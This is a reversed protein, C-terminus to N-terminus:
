KGGKFLHTYIMSALGDSAEAFLSELRYDVTVRGTGDKALLGGACDIFGSAKLPRLYPEDQRRCYLKCGAGLEGSAANAFSSLLRGYGESERYDLIGSWVVELHRSVQEAKAQAIVKNAQIKAHSADEQQEKENLASVQRKAIEVEAHAELEANSVIGESEAKARGLIRAAEEDGKRRIEEELRELGM